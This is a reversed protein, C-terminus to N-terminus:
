QGGGNPNYRFMIGKAVRSNTKGTSIREYSVVQMSEKVEIYGPDCIKSREALRKLNQYAKQKTLGTEEAAQEPSVWNGSNSKLVREVEDQTM